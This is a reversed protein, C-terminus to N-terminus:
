RKMYNDSRMYKDSQIMIAKAVHTGTIAVPFNPANDSRLTIAKLINSCNSSYNIVARPINSDNDSRLTVSQSYALISLM